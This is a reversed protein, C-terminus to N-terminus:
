EQRRKRPQKAARARAMDNKGPATAAARQELWAVFSDIPYAVTRGIRVREPPGEGVSDLNAITTGKYLGGTFTHVQSRAVVASPWKNKLFQLNTVNRQM